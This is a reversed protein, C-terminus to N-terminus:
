LWRLLRSHIFGWAIMVLLFAVVVVFGYEWDSPPIIRAFNMGYISAVFNPVLIILTIATLRQMIKGLRNFAYFVQTDLAAGLLDRYTDLEALVHIAHDQVDAFYPRLGEPIMRERRLVEELVHSTPALLPPVRLLEKRLRFLDAAASEIGKFIEDEISEIRERVRDQVVFYGDVLSEFLNHALSAVGHTQRKENREWRRRAEALVALVAAPRRHITVLYNEGWFLNLERPLFAKGLHEAAYVVIFYYGAYADCRPREHARTVDELALEHFGFVRRLLQVEPEGPDSIDLWLQNRKDTLLEALRDVDVERPLGQDCAEVVLRMTGM